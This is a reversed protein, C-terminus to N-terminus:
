EQKAASSRRLQSLYTPTIGLYTAIIKLPVLRLIEPRNKCLSRYREAASGKIVNRGMEFFYLQCQLNGIVWLAFENSERLLNDFDQKKIRLLRAPCCTEISYPSPYKFLYSHFSICVTGAMGFFDTREIDGDWHWSRMVGEILIFIDSVCKGEPIIPTMGPFMEIEGIEAIRDILEDSIPNTSEKPLLERLIKIDTQTVNM